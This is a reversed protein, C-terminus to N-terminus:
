REGWRLKRRLVEFYNRRRSRVMLVPRAGRRVRVRDRARLPYGVQGDFTLYVESDVTQLVIEVQAGAPVVLPRLTLTHPCIPSILLADMEPHIIPGGASLSYATSGTPTSVILGDARYMTVTHRDIIVKLEIMRALASKSIVVDNLVSQRAVSRGARTLTADLTMRRGVDFRGKLVESLVSPAEEPGTETMFGLGGLNVGLIPVPRGGLTRAASLLTGDGGVVVCLDARAARGPRRRRGLAVATHEDFEVDIGRTEAMRALRRIAPRAAPSDRKGVILIRRVRHPRESEAM